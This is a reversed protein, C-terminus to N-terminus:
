TKTVQYMLKKLDEKNDTLKKGDLIKFVFASRNSEKGYSSFVKTAQEKRSPLQKLKEVFDTMGQIIKLVEKYGDCIISAYGRVM